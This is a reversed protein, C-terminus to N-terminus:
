KETDFYYNLLLLNREEQNINIEEVGHFSESTRPFILATNPSFPCTKIKQFNKQTEDFNFHTTSDIKTISKYLSTGNKILNNNPPIYFLFTIFKNFSDTHAGLSYKTFDKILSSRFKFKLNPFNILKKEEDSLGLLHNDLTKKFSNTVAGFLEESFLLKTLNKFFLKGKESIKELENEKTFNFIYREDSYRSGVAGTQNIKQYNNKDPLNQLIETFFTEPFVNQVYKHSFPEDIVPSNFITKTLTHLIAKDM